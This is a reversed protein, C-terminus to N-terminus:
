SWGGRCLRAPFDKYQDKLKALQADRATPQMDLIERFTQSSLNTRGIQDKLEDYKTRPPLKGRPTRPLRPPSSKM